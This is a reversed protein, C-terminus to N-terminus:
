SYSNNCSGLSGWHVNVVLWCTENTYGYYSILCKAQKQKIPYATTPYTYKYTTYFVKTRNHTIWMDLDLDMHTDKGVNEDQLNKANMLDIKAQFLFARQNMQTM